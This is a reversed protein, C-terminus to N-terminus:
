GGLILKLLIFPVLVLVAGAGIFVLVAKGISEKESERILARM